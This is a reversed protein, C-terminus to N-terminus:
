LGIMKFFAKLVPGDPNNYQQGVDFHNLSPLDFEQVDLNRERLAQAFEMSQRRFEKQENEGYCLIIPPPDDPIQLISSNRRAGEVDLKLYDNRASLRVPELDYMGSGALVGKVANRPLGWETWDTVWMMGSVHGGSSHGAVYLRDPDFGQERANNYVWAIAARNQRVLEDLTVSPVLGFNVSVYNAGAAVFSQAQYSAADKHSRAWAGGHIYVVVPAGETAAPFIDLLEDASPGYPINLRCELLDRAKASEQANKKQYEDVNPVLFSQNYQNNLAEQDYDLWVKETTETM